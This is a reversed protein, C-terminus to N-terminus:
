RRSSAQWITGARKVGGGSQFGGRLSFLHLVIYRLYAVQDDIIKVEDGWSRMNTERGGRVPRARAPWRDEDWGGAWRGGCDQAPSELRSGISWGRDQEWRLCMTTARRQPRHKTLRGLVTRRNIEPGESTCPIREGGSLLLGKEAGPWNRWDGRPRRSSSTSGSYM